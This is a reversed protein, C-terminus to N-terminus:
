PFYYQGTESYLIALNLMTRVKQKDEYIKSISFMNKMGSPLDFKYGRNINSM